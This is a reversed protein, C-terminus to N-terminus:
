YFFLGGMSLSVWEIDGNEIYETLFLPKGPNIGNESSEIANLMSIATLVGFLIAILAM